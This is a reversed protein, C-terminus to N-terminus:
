YPVVIIDGRRVRFNDQVRGENIVKDYDFPVRISKGNEERAVYIKDKKAFETLGGALALVELVTASSHLDYRSPTKVAGIVSVKLSHIERVIVSVVPDEYYKAYGEALVDRLQAPTLGAAKVDNVLVLSVHGDPLVPVIRTLNDNKWVSIELVDEPGIVYQDGDSRSPEAQQIASPSVPGAGTVAQSEAAPDALAAPPAMALIALLSAIAFQRVDTNM